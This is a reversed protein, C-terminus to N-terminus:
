LPHGPGPHVLRGITGPHYGGGAQQRRALETGNRPCWSGRGGSRIGNNVGPAPQHHTAPEALNVNRSGRSRRNELYNVSNGIVRGSGSRAQGRESPEALCEGAIVLGSHRSEVAAPQARPGVGVQVLRRESTNSDEHPGAM